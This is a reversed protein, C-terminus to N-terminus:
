ILALVPVVLLLPLGFYVARYVVVATRDEPDPRAVDMGAQALLVLAFASLFWTDRLAAGGALDVVVPALVLIITAAISLLTSRRSPLPRRDPWWSTSEGSMPRGNLLPPHWGPAPPASEYRNGTMADPHVEGVGRPLM